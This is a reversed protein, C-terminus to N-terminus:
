PQLRPEQLKATSGIKRTVVVGPLPVDKAFTAVGEVRGGEGGRYEECRTDKQLLISCKVRLFNVTDTDRIRYKIILNNIYIYIYIYIYIHM